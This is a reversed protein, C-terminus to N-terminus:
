ATEARVREGKAVLVAHQYAAKNASDRGNQDVM